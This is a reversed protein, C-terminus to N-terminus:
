AQYEVNKPVAQIQDLEGTRYILVLQNYNRKKTTMQM